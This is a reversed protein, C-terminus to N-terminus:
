QKVRQVQWETASSWSTPLPLTQVKEFADGPFAKYSVIISGPKMKSAKEGLAKMMEEDWFVSDTFIVDADELKV